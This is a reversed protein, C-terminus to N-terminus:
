RDARRATRGRSDSRPTACAGRVLDLVLPHLARFCYAIGPELVIAAERGRGHIRNEYLFPVTEAGVTQLRLLPMKRVVGDVDAALQEWERPDARLRDVRGGYRARAERVLNVIAAQRGTNQALVGSEGSGPWPAVQRWYLEVFREGIARVPLRLAGGGADGRQVSLDALAHILAFKYTATTLGEGLIRQLGTLFRLQFDASPAATM